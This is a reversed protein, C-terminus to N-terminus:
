TVHSALGGWVGMGTIYLTYIIHLNVLYILLYIIIMENQSLKSIYGGRDNDIILKVGEDIM